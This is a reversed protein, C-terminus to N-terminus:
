SRDGASDNVKVRLLDPYHEAYLKLKRKAVRRMFRDGRVDEAVAIIKRLTERTPREPRDETM